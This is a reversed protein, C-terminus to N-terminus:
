RFKEKKNQQYMVGIRSPDSGSKRIKVEIKSPGQFDTTFYWITDVLIRRYVIKRDEQITTGM